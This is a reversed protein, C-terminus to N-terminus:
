NPETEAFKLEPDHQSRHLFRIVDRTLEVTAAEQQAAECFIRLAALAEREVGQSTFIWRMEEALTRAEATRGQVVLLLALDLSVQAYDFALPPEFSAFKNRVQEFAEEAEEARGTGAAIKAAIFAVQVLDVEQGLQEALAQAAPLHLAAEAARGQLCLNFLLQLRVGLAMRPEREEAIHSIAERLVETSAEVEGLAGLFQAKSLLLKGRLGGRDAALAKEIRKMAEPLRRQAKRVTAEIWYVLTEDFLGPNGPAAAEWFSVATALAADSVRLDNTVRRANAIHFWAFGRASLRLWEDGPCLEAIRLALEALELANAPSSPAMDISKAAAAECLAWSQFDEIEQVMALRQRANHPELRLWLQAALERDAASPVAPVRPPPAPAAATFIAELAEGSVALLEAFFTETMVRDVRSWGRAAARFSRIARLAPRVLIRPFSRADVARELVLDPVTREGKLYVSVQSAATGTAAGFGAQDLEMDGRVLMYLLRKNKDVKTETTVPIGEKPLLRM